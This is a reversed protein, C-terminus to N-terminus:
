MNLIQCVLKLIIFIIIEYGINKINININIFDFVVKKVMLVPSKM